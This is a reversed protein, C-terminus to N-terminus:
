SSDYSLLGVSSRLTNQSISLVHRSISNKLDPLDRPNDRNLLHKLQRSLRFDCPNIDPPRLPWLNCLVLQHCTTRHVSEQSSTWLVCSLTHLLEM